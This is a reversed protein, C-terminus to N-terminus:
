TSIREIERSGQNNDHDLELGATNMTVIAPKDALMAEKGEERVAANRPRENVDFREKEVVKGVCFVM